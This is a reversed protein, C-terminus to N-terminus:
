RSDAHSITYFKIGCLLIVNIWSFGKKSRYKRYTRIVIFIFLCTSQVVWRFIAFTQIFLSAYGAAPLLLTLILRCCVFKMNWAEAPGTWLFTLILLGSFGRDLWALIYNFWGMPTELDVNTLLDGINTEAVQAIQLLLLLAAM